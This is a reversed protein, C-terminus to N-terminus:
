HNQARAVVQRTASEARQALDLLHRAGDTLEKERAEHELERAEHELERDEHEQERGVLKQERGKLEQEYVKLEQERGTLKQECVKLEQERGKLKQEREKLEQERDKLRQERDKLEQLEAHVKQLEAAQERERKTERLAHSEPDRLSKFVLCEVALVDTASLDESVGDRLTEYGEKDNRQWALNVITLILKLADATAKFAKSRRERPILDKHLTFEIPLNSLLTDGLLEFLPPLFSLGSAIMQPRPKGDLAAVVLACFMSVAQGTGCFARKLIGGLDRKPDDLYGALQLVVAIIMGVFVVLKKSDHYFRTEGRERDRTAVLTQQLAFETESARDADRNLIADAAETVADDDRLQVFCRQPEGQFYKSFSTIWANFLEVLM